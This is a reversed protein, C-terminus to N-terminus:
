YIPIITSHTSHMIHDFLFKEMESDKKQKTDNNNNDDDIRPLVLINISIYM